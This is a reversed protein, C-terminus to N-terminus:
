WSDRRPGEGESEWWLPVLQHRPTRTVPALRRSAPVTVRAALAIAKRERDMVGVERAVAVKTRLRQEASTPEASGPEVTWEVGGFPARM